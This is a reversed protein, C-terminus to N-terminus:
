RRRGRTRRGPRTSRGSGLAPMRRAGRGGYRVFRQLHGLLVEDGLELLASHIQEPRLAHRDSNHVLHYWVVQAHVSLARYRPDQWLRPDIQPCGAPTRDSRAM